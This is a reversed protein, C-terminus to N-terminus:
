SELEETDENVVKAKAGGLFQESVRVVQGPYTVTALKHQFEYLSRPGADETWQHLGDITVRFVRQRPIRM